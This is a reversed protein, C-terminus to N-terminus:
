YINWITNYKKGESQDYMYKMWIKELEYSIQICICCTVLGSHFAVNSMCFDLIKLCIHLIPTHTHTHTHAHAHTHAHTRAHTGTHTHNQSLPLYRIETLCVKIVSKSRIQAIKLTASLWRIGHCQNIFFYVIYYIEFYKTIYTYIFPM